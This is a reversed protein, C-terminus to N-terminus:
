GKQMDPSVLRPDVENELRINRGALTLPQIVHWRALGAGFAGNYKTTWLLAKSIM